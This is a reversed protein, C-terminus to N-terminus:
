KCKKIIQDVIDDLPLTGDIVIDSNPKVTEIHILYPLRSRELYYDLEEELRKIPSQMKSRNPDRRLYDRLIRRAFAIDLPTDIFVTYDIYKGVQENKYAFPYDLFIYDLKKDNIAEEIDPLMPSLDWLKYDAGEVSWQYYDQPSNPFDYDDFFVAKSNELKKVLEKVATTKGGGSIAAIAIVKPKKV